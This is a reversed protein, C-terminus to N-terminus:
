EQIEKLPKQAAHAVNPFNLYCDGAWASNAARDYAHAASEATAFSGLAIEHGDVNLRARWRNTAAERSVGKFGSVSGRRPGVRRMGAIKREIAEASQRRGRLKEAIRNVAEAPMKKGLNGLSIKRRSADTHKPGPKGIKAASLKARTEESRPIGIKSEGIRRKADETHPTGPKGLFAARMKARTEASPIYGSTGDGGDTLNTLRDDSSRFYRILEIEASKADHHTLGGKLIGLLINGGTSIVSAVWNAKRTTEVASDRVHDRLRKAPNNTIGIYRVDEPERDDVLAYVFWTDARRPANSKDFLEM